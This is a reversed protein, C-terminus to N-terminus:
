KLFYIKDTFNFELNNVSIFYIGSQTINIPTIGSGTITKTYINRGSLDYINLRSRPINQYNLFYIGHQKYIEINDSIQHLPNEEVSTTFNLFISLYEANTINPNTDSENEICVLDPHNEALWNYGITYSTDYFTDVVAYATIITYSRTKLRLAPFTGAAITMNGYGDVVFDMYSNFIWMAPPFYFTDLTSIRVSDGYTFPLPIQGNDIEIIFHEGNSFYENGLFQWYNQTLRYYTISTDNDGFDQHVLNATPFTDHAPATNPNIIVTYDTDPFSTFSSFDWNQPGGATGINVTVNEVEGYEWCTGVTTLIDASDMVVQANLFVFFVMLVGILLYKM